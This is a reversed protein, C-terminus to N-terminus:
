HLGKLKAILEALLYHKVDTILTLAYPKVFMLALLEGSRMRQFKKAQDMGFALMGAPGPGTTQAARPASNIQQGCKIYALRAPEGVKIAWVLMAAKGSERGKEHFLSENSLQRM